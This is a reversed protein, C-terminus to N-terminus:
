RRFEKISSLFRDALEKETKVGSVDVKLHMAANLLARVIYSKPLKYGGSAKMNGAMGQLWADMEKTISVPVRFLGKPVESRFKSM